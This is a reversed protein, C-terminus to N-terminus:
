DWDILYFVDGSDNEYSDWSREGAEYVFTDLDAEREDEPIGAEKLLRDAFDFLWNQPIRIM